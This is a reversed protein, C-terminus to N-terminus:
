HEPVLEPADPFVVVIGNKSPATKHVYVDVVVPKALTLYGNDDEEGVTAGRSKEVAFDMALRDAEDKPLGQLELEKRYHVMEGIKEGLRGLDIATAGTVSISEPVNPEYSPVIHHVTMQEGTNPDRYTLRLFHRPDGSADTSDFQKQSGSKVAVVLGSTRRGRAIAEAVKAKRKPATIREWNIVLIFVVVFLAFLWGANM